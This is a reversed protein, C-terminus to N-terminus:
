AAIRWGFDPYFRAMMRDAYAVLAPYQAVAHDRLPGDFFPTVLGAFHAFAAADASTPRAGFLFPQDALLAALAQLSWDAFADFEADSHRGLARERRYRIDACVQARVEEPAGAFFMAPGKDFNAPTLWRLGMTAHVLANDLMREIAWAQARERAGLGEDLDVGYKAEIHRRIFVSDAVVEAGDTIFPLTGKPSSEPTASVKRYPLKALMLHVESKMAFPSIEPLGFGEGACHLVIM